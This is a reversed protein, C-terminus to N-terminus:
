NNKVENVFDEATSDGSILKLLASRIIEANDKNTAIATQSVYKGKTNDFIERADQLNEPYKSNPDVPLANAEDVMNQDFETNVFVAFDVAADKEEQSADKNVGIGYSSYATYTSDNVGGEVEPFAFQGWKFDPSVSDQVEGPLWTGNLYMGIDENMVFEQQAQPFQVSAVNDAFYGAQAMKELEQAAQLVAPDNWKEFTTDNVLEDVWEEGKLRSLYYGLIGTSYNPDTTLPTFGADKIKQCVDLFENWTKPTEKVGAKEFIDKNYFYIFAQPNMPVYYYKGEGLESDLLLMAPSTYDKYAKGDTTSYDKDFYATLDENSIEFKKIINYANADYMTVNQGSQLATPLLKSNDRGNFTFNVKVNPNKEEYAKAAEQLVQAQPEVENYSSWYELTVESDNDTNAATEDKKTNDEAKAAEETKSTDETKAADDTKVAEETQSPATTNNNVDDAGNGCASMTFSMALTLLFPLVKNNKM